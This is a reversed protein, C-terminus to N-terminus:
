RLLSQSTQPERALSGVPKSGLRAVLWIDGLWTRASSKGLKKRRYYRASGLRASGPETGGRASKKWENDFCMM